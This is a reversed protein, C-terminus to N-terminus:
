KQNTRKMWDSYDNIVKQPLDTYWRYGLQREKEVEALTKRKIGDRGCFYPEFTDLDYFRGWIPPANTDKIVTKKIVKGQGNYERKVRYGTIKVKEYWAIAAHVAKKVDESPNELSMLLDVLEVSEKGSLSALEYARAKAPELTFEDHQACWVTLEGDKLYQTKLICDIGKDFATRVESMKEKDLSIAYYASDELLRKLLRLVTVMADDNYTIHTYYGKRLPYFQPWGGNEYQAELLYDLGKLFAVKYREDPVARYMRSLFLMEQMTAGNDITINQTDSKISLLDEKEKSSLPKQMTINKPWGGMNRQYLLVNEAVEKAEETTFWATDNRNIIQEWSHDLVQAKSPTFSYFCSMLLVLITHKYKMKSSNKKLSTKEFITM